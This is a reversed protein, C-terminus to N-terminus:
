AQGALMWQNVGVQPLGEFCRGLSWGRCHFGRSSFSESEGELQREQARESVGM